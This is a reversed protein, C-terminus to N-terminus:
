LRRLRPRGDPGLMLASLAWVLADMRDPSGKALAGDFEAMQDELQPFAGVHHVRAQEYLAAIPEARVRKGRSAHVLRVPVAGDAQALVSAVLDGGQNAEAVIRDALFAHYAEVAKAAWLAPSAGQLSYDALVYGHGDEGLGAVVIGCEDAQPGSSVPPDVGVVIRRLPPAERLRAAEIRARPFLAYPNDELIEADLEQRGLRTGAYKAQMTELFGPALNAANAFTSARTTATYPDSLLAKLIPIPRPTTTVIQRPDEGLRLGFQLMDWAEQAYRFKALEDVWAADFQPGRLGDPEEASFVHAEAGNPWVVRRKSPEFSPRWRGGFVSLLGSPGEIMVARADSFTEGLLAARRCLGASLPTKGEIRSRLWEAGTRTKGAGRGGLVLWTRWARPHDPPPLQDPRAWFRWDELTLRIERPSM